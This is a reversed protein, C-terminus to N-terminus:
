RSHHHSSADEAKRDFVGPASPGQTTNQRPATPAPSRKRSPVPPTTVLITVPGVPVRSLTDHGDQIASTGVPEKGANVFTVSGTSLRKGQYTVTGSVDGTKVGCGMCVVAALLLMMGTSAFDTRVCGRQRNM